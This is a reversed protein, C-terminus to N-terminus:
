PSCAANQYRPEPADGAVRRILNQDLLSSLDELADRGQMDWMCVAQVADLLWGGAFVGLRRFLAQHEPAMLDYSWGIADRMSRLRAPADRAGGSLLPLGGELRELLAQPPLMRSRAAALEIALPLGDLKRCIDAVSMANAPSLNFEGCAAEARSMFLRVAECRALDEVQYHMRDPLGLPPVQVVHEGTLMLPTRSTALVSLGPCEVLLETVLPAASLVHEFNDLVVLVPQSGVRSSLAALWDAGGAEPLEFGAAILTSVLAPDGIPALSVFVIGGVYQGAAAEAIAV